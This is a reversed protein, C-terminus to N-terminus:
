GFTKRGQHTMMAMLDPTQIMRWLLLKYLWLLQHIFDYSQGLLKPTLLALHDAHQYPSVANVVQRSGSLQLATNTVQDIHSIYNHQLYLEALRHLGSFLGSGLRELQNHDLHLARLETLGELSYNTITHINSHNLFVSLIRRRGIFGPNVLETMNNGDLHVATADMPILAPVDLHGRNSCQIINHQWATDHYCACGEPCQMRCDCAFFDCCFCQQICHAEYQCMFQGPVLDQVSALSSNSLGDAVGNLACVLSDLDAVRVGGPRTNVTQLWQMTCDCLWPNGALLLEGQGPVASEELGRLLNGGLEVRSLNTLGTWAGGSISTLKNSNLFISRLGSLLSGAELESISNHSADFTQLSFGTTLSYYNGIKDIKNNHIDLWELSKPIFAFDFWQILNTSVNLWKLNKQSSVLGNIDTLKNNDLRLARLSTLPALAQQSVRELQNHAINLVHLNSNNAFVDSEIATLRNGALRLGYLSPLRGLIAPALSDIRNEGLDLTRLRALRGVDQPVATLFNNNLALDQLNTLTEPHLSGPPLVTLRNHDLSLSSLSALPALATRPLETLQNHSLLLIHLNVLSDTCGPQLAAVHNHQLNLIQLSLQSALLHSDLRTLTNHSLDLAVLKTLPALTAPALLHSSLSNRSLNLLLLSDLGAFLDPSLLSLSNNQLFLKALHDSHQFLTPPLAALENNSLDLSALSWLSHLATDALVSLRNGSLDLSALGPARALDGPQLSSIKNRSLDLTKLHLLPCDPGAGLGAEGVEVINNSSLNLSQLAPTPCLLGGPLGWINNDALDLHHLAGLGALSDEELQLTMSGSWQSNHGQISLSQLGRLGLFADGPLLQLLM